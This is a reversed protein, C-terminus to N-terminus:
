FYHCWCFRGFNETCSIKSLNIACKFLQYMMALSKTDTTSVYINGQADVKIEGIEPFTNASYTPSIIELSILEQDRQLYFKGGHGLLISKSDLMWTAVGGTGSPWGHSWYFEWQPEPQKISLHPAEGFFLIKSGDPSWYGGGQAIAFHEYKAGAVAARLFDYVGHEYDDHGKADKDYRSSSTDVTILWKGDPSCNVARIHNRKAIKRQGGKSLSFLIPGSKESNLVVEDNGCWVAETYTVNKAILRESNTPVALSAESAAVSFSQSSLFLVFAVTVQFAFRIKKM